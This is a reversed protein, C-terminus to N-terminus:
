QQKYNVLEYKELTIKSVQIPFFFCTRRLTFFDFFKEPSKKSVPCINVCVPSITHYRDLSKQVVHCLTALSVMHLNITPQLERYDLWM